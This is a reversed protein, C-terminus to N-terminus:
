HHAAGIAPAAAAGAASTVATPTPELRQNPENKTLIAFNWLQASADEFKVQSAGFLRIGRDVIGLAAFQEGAKMRDELIVLAGGLKGAAAKKDEQHWTNVAFMAILLGLAAVIGSAVKKRATALRLGFISVVAAFILFVFLQVTASM